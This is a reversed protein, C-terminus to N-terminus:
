QIAEPHSERSASSYTSAGDRSIMQINPYTKLWECVEKTDRSPIIDIIRHTDWDFM